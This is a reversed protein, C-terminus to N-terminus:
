RMADYINELEYYSYKKLTISDLHYLSVSLANGKLDKSILSEAQLTEKYDSAEYRLVDGKKLVYGGVNADMKLTYFNKSRSFLSDTFVDKSMNQLLGNFQNNRFLVVWEFVPFAVDLPLPYNKLDGIYKKLEEVDLISNASNINRLNGMNYCMLMGRQVPPVGTTRRFKIQHLRITASYIQTSDLAHLNNLISFYKEKTTKTWDCDIQIEGPKPLNNETNIKQILQFIRHALNDTQEEKIKFICENTIYVTPIISFSHLAIKNQVNLQALPKPEGALEDWAVDFFRLYIKKVKLSDLKKLESTTPAFNTKWHYISRTINRPETSPMRCSILFLILVYFSFKSHM